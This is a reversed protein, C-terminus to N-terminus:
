ANSIIEEAALLVDQRLNKKCCSAILNQYPEDLPFFSQGCACIKKISVSPTGLSLHFQPVDKTVISGAGVMAFSGVTVGCRIISGAGISCSPNLTTKVTDWTKTGVRPYLDNTFIVHPGVFCNKSIEVGKYISM